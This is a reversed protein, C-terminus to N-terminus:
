QREKKRKKLHAKSQIGSRRQAQQGYSERLKTLVLVAYRDTAPSRSGGPNDTNVNQTEGMPM